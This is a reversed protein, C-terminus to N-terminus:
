RVSQLRGGANSDSNNNGGQGAQESCAANRGMKRYRTGSMRCSRMGGVVLTRAEVIAFRLPTNRNRGERRNRWQCDMGLHAYGNREIERKMSLACM